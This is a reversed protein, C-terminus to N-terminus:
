IIAVSRFRWHFVQQYSNILICHHNSNFRMLHSTKNNNTLSSLDGQLSAADSSSKISNFCKMDDTYLLVSSTSVFPSIVNIFILFLLLGLIGQSVGSIVPLTMPFEGNLLVQQSRSSLYAIFWHWLNGSVGCSWLKHLLVNHTLSKMLHKVSISVYSM